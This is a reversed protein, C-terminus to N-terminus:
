ATHSAINEDGLDYPREFIARDDTQIVVAKDFRIGTFRNLRFGIFGYDKHLHTARRDSIAVIELLQFSSNFWRTLRAGCTGESGQREDV